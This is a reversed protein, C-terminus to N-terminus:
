LAAAGAALTAAFTKGEGTQMEILRGQLLGWGALLQPEYHRKGVSREAAERVLAFCEGALEVSFGQRRFRGRLSAALEGLARDDAAALRREHAQVAPLIDRLAHSPDRLSTWLRRVCADWLFEAARDHWGPARESREAYPRAAALEGADALISTRSM